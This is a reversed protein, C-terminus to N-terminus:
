APQSRTLRSWRGRAAKGFTVVIAMTKRLMDSLEAEIKPMSWTIPKTAANVPRYDFTMRYM